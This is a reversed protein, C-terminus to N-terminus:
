SPRDNECDGDRGGEEGREERGTVGTECGEGDVVELRCKDCWCLNETGLERGVELSFEGADGRECLRSRLLGRKLKAPTELEISSAIRPKLPVESSRPRDLRLPWGGPFPLSAPTRPAPSPHCSNLFPNYVNGIEKEM